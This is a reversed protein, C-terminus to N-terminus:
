VLCCSLCSVYMFLLFLGCLCKITILNIIKFSNNLNLFHSGVHINHSLRCAKNFVKDHNMAM